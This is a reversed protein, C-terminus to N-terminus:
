CVIEKMLRQKIRDALSFSNYIPKHLCFKNAMSIDIPFDAHHITISEDSSTGGSTGFGRLLEFRLVRGRFWGDM